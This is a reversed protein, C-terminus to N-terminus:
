SREPEHKVQVNEWEPNSSFSFSEDLCSPGKIM